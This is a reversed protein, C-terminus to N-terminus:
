NSNKRFRIVLLIINIIFVVKFFNFSNNFLNKNFSTNINFLYHTIISIPIIMLFILTLDKKKFFLLNVIFILIFISLFDFISTDYFRYMRLNKILKEFM